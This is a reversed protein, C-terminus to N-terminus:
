KLSGLAYELYTYLDTMRSKPLPIRIVKGDSDRFTLYATKILTQDYPNGTLRIFTLDYDQAIDRAILEICGKLAKESPM